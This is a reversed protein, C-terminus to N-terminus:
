MYFKAFYGYLVGDLPFRSTRTKSECMLPGTGSVWVNHKRLNVAGTKHSWIPFVGSTLRELELMIAMSVILQPIDGVGGM